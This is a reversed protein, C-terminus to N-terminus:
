VIIYGRCISAFHFSVSPMLSMFYIEIGESLQQQLLISTGLNLTGFWKTCEYMAIM